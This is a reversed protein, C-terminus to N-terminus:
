QPKAMGNYQAMAKDIGHTVICEVASAARLTTEDMLKKDAGIFHGLVWDALDYDPHPKQGVGIRLRPFQDSGLCSIISKLGNHGGASGAKRIRIAGVPLATDDTIVLVREPPIKYFSAGEKVAQGSLNMFTTPKVLLASEEGISVRQTLAHFKLRSVSVNMQQALTDIVAFGINHRTNDYQQGINGLGVVLWAAGNNKKQFFM